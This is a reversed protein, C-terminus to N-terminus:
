TERIRGLMLLWKKKKRQFTSKLLIKAIAAASATRTTVAKGGIKAGRGGPYEDQSLKKVEGAM